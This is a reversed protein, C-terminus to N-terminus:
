ALEDLKRKKLERTAPKKKNKRDLWIMLGSVPLSAVTLSVFFALIKGFLGGIAGMHIDYNMRIVMDSFSAKEYADYLSSTEVEELTHQDYFRYDSSYYVGEKYAIEVYISSSDTPPYQFEMTRAQPYKEMLKPTLADLA